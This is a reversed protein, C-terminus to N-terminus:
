KKRKRLVAPLYYAITYPIHPQILGERSKRVCASCSCDKKCKKVTQVDLDSRM